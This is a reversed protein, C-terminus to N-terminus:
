CKQKMEVKVKITPKRMGQEGWEQFQTNNPSKPSKQSKGNKKGEQILSEGFHYFWLIILAEIPQLSQFDLYIHHGTIM